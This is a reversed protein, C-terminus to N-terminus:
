AGFLNGYRRSLHERSMKTVRVVGAKTIRKGEARFKEIARLVKKTSTAVQAQHSHHAGQRKRELPSLFLNQNEAHNVVSPSLWLCEVRRTRKDSGNGRIDFDVRKWGARELPHYAACEHGSLVVMGRVNLLLAVLERHDRRTLELRYSGGLVTSPYFPPDCYFLTLPSDYRPIVRRWDDAEIQVNQFRKHVAPLGGIGDGWRKVVSAIGGEVDCVSYRWRVGLGARSQRQRIIFRRAAEVPDDSQEKALQFEARSYPTADLKRRLEACSKSNRVVRFLNVLSEDADNYIEIKSLEKTLLVAASGGFPECYTRHTPFHQLIKTALKTKSGHWTVPSTISM